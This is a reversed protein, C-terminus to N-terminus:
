LYGRLTNLKTTTTEQTLCIYSHCVSVYTMVMPLYEKHIVVGHRSPANHQLLLCPALSYGRTPHLMTKSLLLRAPVQVYEWCHLPLPTPTCVLLISKLVGAMCLTPASPPPLLSCRFCAIHISRTSRQACCLAPHCLLDLTSEPNHSVVHVHFTHLKNKPPHRIQSYSQFPRYM